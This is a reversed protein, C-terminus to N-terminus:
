HAYDEFTLIAGHPTLRDGLMKYLVSVRAELQQPLQNVAHKVDVTRKTASLCREILGDYNTTWFTDINLQALIRHTESM